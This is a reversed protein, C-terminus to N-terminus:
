LGRSQTGPPWRGEQFVSDEHARDGDLPFLWIKLWCPCDRGARPQLTQSRRLLPLLGVAPFLFESRDRMPPNSPISERPALENWPAAGVRAEHLLEMCTVFLDGCRPKEAQMASLYEKSTLPINTWLSAFLSLPSIYVYLIYMSYISAGSCVGAQEQVSVEGEVGLSYDIGTYLCLSFTYIYTFDYIYIYICSCRKLSLELINRTGIQLPCWGETQAKGRLHLLHALLIMASSWGVKSM